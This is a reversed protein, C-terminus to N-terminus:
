LDDAVFGPWFGGAAGAGSVGAWAAAWAWAGAAGALAAPLGTHRKFAWNSGWISPAKTDMSGREPSTKAQTPPNEKSRLWYLRAVWARRWGPEDNLGM